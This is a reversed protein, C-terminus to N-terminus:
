AEAHHISKRLFRHTIRNAFGSIFWAVLFKWGTVQLCGNYFFGFGNRFSFHLANVMFNGCQEGETHLIIQLFQSGLPGQHLRVLRQSVLSKEETEVLNKTADPLFYVSLLTNVM